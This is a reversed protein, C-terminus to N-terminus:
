AAAEQDGAVDEPRVDDHAIVGHGRSRRRQGLAVDGLRDVVRQQPRLEVVREDLVAAPEGGRVVDGRDADSRDVDGPGRRDEGAGVDRDPGDIPKGCPLWRGVVLTTRPAAPARGVAGVSSSMTM